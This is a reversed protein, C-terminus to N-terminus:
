YRRNRREDDRDRLKYTYLAAGGAGLLAGIIAGKKGGTVGGLVAGAGAGGAVTLKDRHEDWFSDDDNRRDYYVRRNNDYRRHQSARNANRGNRSTQASAPLAAGALLVLSMLFGLIKKM